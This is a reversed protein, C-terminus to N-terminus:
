FYYTCVYPNSFREILVALTHFRLFPLRFATTFFGHAVGPLQCTSYASVRQNFQVPDSWRFHDILDVKFGDPGPYGHCTALFM